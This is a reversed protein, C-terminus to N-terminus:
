VKFARQVKAPEVFASGEATRSFWMTGVCILTSQGIVGIDGRSATAVHCEEFHKAIADGLSDVGMTALAKSASKEGTFAPIFPPKFDDGRLAKVVDVAMTICNSSKWDFLEVRYREIVEFFAFEWASIRSM